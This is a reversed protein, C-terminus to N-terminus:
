KGSTVVKQYIRMRKANAIALMHGSGKSVGDWVLILADAYAAMDQNRKYGASKGFRDWNAPFQKLMVGHALAWQEGLSDAGSATGSVVETIKWGCESVAAEVLAYDTINRGGAIITRM